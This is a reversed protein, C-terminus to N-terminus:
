LFFLHLRSCAKTAHQSACGLVGLFSVAGVRPERPVCSTTELPCRPLLWEGKFLYDYEDEKGSAM